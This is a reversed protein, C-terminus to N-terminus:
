RGAYPAKRVGHSSKSSFVDHSWMILNGKGIIMRGSKLQSHSQSVISQQSATSVPQASQRVAYCIILHDTWWATLCMDKERGFFLVVAVLSFEVTFERTKGELLVETNASTLLAHM